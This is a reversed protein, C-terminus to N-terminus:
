LRLRATLLYLRELSRPVVLFLSQSSERDIVAQIPLAVVPLLAQPPDNQPSTSVSKSVTPTPAAFAFSQPQSTLVVKCCRTARDKERHVAEADRHQCCCEEVVTEGMMSCAMVARAQSLPLLLVMLITFSKKLM